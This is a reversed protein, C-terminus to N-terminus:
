EEKDTLDVFTVKGNYFGALLSFTYYAIKAEVYYNCYYDRVPRYHSDLASIYYNM